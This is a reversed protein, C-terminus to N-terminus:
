RGFKNVFDICKLLSTFDAKNKGILNKATGHDPSVRLYKLGLTINIADFKFISKFPSLVQDHFMGVIVDYNRFENMFLTDSVLPGKINVGKKKLKKIAPIIVRNEESDSRFEANHPNLGLVGIKPKKSFKKKFWTDITTIKNIIKKKNIKKAIEKVDIHTTIPSVSLKNNRILMVESDNRIKCKSALYETVGIKKKKLLNKNIACNIVGIVVKNLALTHAYDLSKIVFKSASSTSVKFPNTFKLDIDIVKLNDSKLNENINKVKEIKTKYKLRLFQKNLMSFNSILYIRKKLSKNLSKWAKFILESNISNPDGSVIVIKNNM